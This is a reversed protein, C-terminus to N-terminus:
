QQRGDTIVEELTAKNRTAVEQGALRLIKAYRLRARARAAPLVEEPPEVMCTLVYQLLSNTLAFQVHTLTFLSQFEKAVKGLSAVIRAELQTTLETGDDRKLENECAALIFAQETRFGREKAATRVRTRFEETPFALNREIRQKRMVSGGKKTHRKQPAFAFIDGCRLSSVESSKSTLDRAAHGGEKINWYGRGGAAIQEV